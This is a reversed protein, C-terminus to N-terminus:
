RVLQKDANDSCHSGVTDVVVHDVSDVIDVVVHVALELLNVM